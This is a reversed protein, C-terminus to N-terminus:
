WCLWAGVRGCVNKLCTCGCDDTQGWAACPQCNYHCICDPCYQYDGDCQVYGKQSPCNRDVASCSSGECSVSPHSGCDAECYATIEFSVSDERAPCLPPAQAQESDLVVSGAEEVPQGSVHEGSAPLVMLALSLVLAGLRLPVACRLFVGSM